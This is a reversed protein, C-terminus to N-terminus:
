SLFNLRSTYTAKPTWNSPIVDKATLSKGTSTSLKVSFPGRLPGKVICWNAGWVHNMQQWESSGAEQIHMSGIDGDGDEFEVLLSLWFPTSGENVHFAINKGAYKCPTRRYIVPIEGRNRLQGNEGVVAMRGFASGSLDFHTRDSPCGPCEDTIIVTVARKSCISHDLCKVKYCAGCGEGKKFLVSGVAGVRAKLPKVDVLTGYGCAGGTSGDGEPDGYWTATGPFWHQDLATLHPEGQAYVLAIRFCLSLFLVASVRHCQM